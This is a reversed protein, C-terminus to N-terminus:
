NARRRQLAQQTASQGQPLYTVGRRAQAQALVAGARAGAPVVPRAQQQLQLLLAVYGLVAADCLLHLIWVSGGFLLGLMMTIGAAAVLTMLVDRRRRMTERRSIEAPVDRAVMGHFPDPQADYAFDYGYDQGHGYHEAGWGDEYRADEVAGFEYGTPAHGYPDAHGHVDHRYGGDYSAQPYATVPERYGTRSLVALQGKFDLVSSSPRTARRRQLYPPLLVSAWLVVLGLLVM